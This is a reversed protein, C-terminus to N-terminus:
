RNFDLTKTPNSKKHFLFIYADVPHILFPIVKWKASSISSTRRRARSYFGPDDPSVPARRGATM